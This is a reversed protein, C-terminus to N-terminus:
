ITEIRGERLYSKGLAVVQVPINKHTHTRTYKHRHTETQSLTSWALIFQKAILKEVWCYIKPWKEHCGIYDIVKNKITASYHVWQHTCAM